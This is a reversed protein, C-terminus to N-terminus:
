TGPTVEAAEATYVSPRRTSLDYRTGANLVHVKVDFVCLTSLSARQSVNTHTVGSGDVVYVAGSGIVDFCREPHVIVATDEDIGIGLVGPNEGVAGLLRHIRARQAFHQDVILDGVLGLGKTMYFANEVSHPHGRVGPSVLMTEGMASAGASTGAVLGGDSFLERLRALLATGGLKAVIQLQDGGTFFVATAGDLRRAAQRDLAQERSTIALHRVEPVGLGAFAKSYRRWQCEPEESALTAVVLTGAGALRVVERLIVLEGHKDERGGILIVRGSGAPAGM